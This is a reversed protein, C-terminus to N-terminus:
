QLATTSTFNIAIALRIHNVNLDLHASIQIGIVRAFMKKDFLLSEHGPASWAVKLYMSSIALRAKSWYALTLAM